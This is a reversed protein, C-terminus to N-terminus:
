AVGGAPGPSPGSPELPKAQGAQPLSFSFAAGQGPGDSTAWLRGGMAEVLGHCIYLGLGSTGAAEEHIRTFPQFLKARQEPSLGLGTDRVTVLAAGDRVGVHVAVSGGSPVMKSVLAHSNKSATTARSICRSPSLSALM